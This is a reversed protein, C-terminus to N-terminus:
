KLVRFNKMKTKKAVTRFGLKILKRSIFFDLNQTM